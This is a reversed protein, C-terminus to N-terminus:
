AREGPMPIVPLTETSAQRSTPLADRREGAEYHDHYLRRGWVRKTIWNTFGVSMPVVHILTYLLYLPLIPAVYGRESEPVITFLAIIGLTLYCGVATAFYLPNALGSDPLVGAAFLHDFGAALSLFLLTAALMKVLHLGLTLVGM